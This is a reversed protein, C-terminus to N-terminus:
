RCFLVGVLYSREDGFQNDAFIVEFDDGFFETFIRVANYSLCSIDWYCLIRADNCNKRIYGEGKSEYLNGISELFDSCLSNGFHESLCKYADAYKDVFVMGLDTVKCDAFANVLGTLKISTREAFSLFDNFKKSSLYM